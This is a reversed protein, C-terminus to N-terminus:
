RRHRIRLMIVHREAALALKQHDAAWDSATVTAGVALEAVPSGTAPDWVRVSGDRRAAAALCRQGNDPLFTVVDVRRCKNPVATTRGAHAAISWLRVTQDRSASALLFASPAARNSM